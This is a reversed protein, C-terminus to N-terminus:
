PGFRNFQERAVDRNCEIFCLAEYFRRNRLFFHRRQISKIKGNRGEVVGNTFRCKHYNLIETKWNEFTSLATEIEPIDFGHGKDLWRRFGSCASNYNSSCDYWDILQEKLDYAYALEESYDLLTSLKKRQESSLDENRKNLLHRHRNLTTRDDSNLSQGVRRRIANLAEIIYGNVHFRDAVRIADPFFEAAFTHYGRALDVVVAFPKLSAIQPNAKMYERLEPLTRGEAIGILSEGRLDHIGTNYNHGKRIAFDDIGLILKNSELATDQVQKVTSEAVKQAIEKFFREVTSYPTGTLNASHEVTSGIAIHYIQAKFAKTYREKGEVFEYTYAFNAECNKCKLKISPVILVCPVLGMNLHTIKKNNEIGKRIVKSCHCCPCNQIRELPVVRVQMEVIENDQHIYHIETARVGQLGMIKVIDQLLV